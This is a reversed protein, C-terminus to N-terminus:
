DFTGSNRKSSVGPWRAKKKKRRKKKKGRKPNLDPDICKKTESADDRSTARKSDYPDPQFPPLNRDYSDALTAQEQYPGKTTVEIRKTIRVMMAQQNTAVM